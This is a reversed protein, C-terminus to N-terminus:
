CESIWRTWVKEKCNQIYSSRKRLECEDINDSAEELNVINMGHILTNPTLVPLQVDDEAYILPRNNLNLEIDLLVEEFENWTLMTSGTSKYMTNKKLGILREFQGGRWPARSLHFKWKIEQHALFNQVTENKVVKKIWSAAKTFTKANDSYITQPRGRKAILLKFSRIFENATQEKLPQLHIARTFSCSFM